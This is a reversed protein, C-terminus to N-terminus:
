RVRVWHEATVFAASALSPRFVRFIRVRYTAKPFAKSSYRRRTDFQVTYTGRKAGRRFVRKRVKKTGCPRKLRGLKINKGRGRRRVHVYLTRGETFGRATIRRRRAPNGGLPRVTVDFVTALPALSAVNAPNAADTAVLSFRRARRPSIAPAEVEGQVRGTADAVLSGAALNDRSFDVRGNPTFGTGVLNVPEAEQYCAQDGVLVAAQAPAATALGAAIISLLPIRRTVPLGKLHHCSAAPYM